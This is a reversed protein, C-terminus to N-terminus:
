YDLNYLGASKRGIADQLAEESDYDDPHSEANWKEDKIRWCLNWLVAVAIDFPTMEDFDYDAGTSKLFLKAREIPFKEDFRLQRCWREAAEKNDTGSMAVDDICQQPIDKQLWYYKDDFWPQSDGEEPVFGSADDEMLIAVDNIIKM